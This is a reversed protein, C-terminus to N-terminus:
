WCCGWTYPRYGGYYGGYYPRRYYGYYRPYYSYRPYYPWSGYGGRWRSWGGYWGGGWWAEAPSPMCGITLAALLGLLAVRKSM